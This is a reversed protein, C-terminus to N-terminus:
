HAGAAGGARGSAGSQGATASNTTVRGAAGGAPGGGGGHNQCACHDYRALKNCTQASTTGDPCPCSATQGTECPIPLAGLQTKDTDLLASCGALSM